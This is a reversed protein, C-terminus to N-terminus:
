RNVIVRFRDGDRIDYNQYFRGLVGGQIRQEQIPVGQIQAGRGGEYTSAFPYEDPSGEGCFGKCALNRNTEIKTKNTTRTLVSPKGGSTQASEINNAINPMKDADIKLVPLDDVHSVTDVIDDGLNLLGIGVNQAESLVAPSASQLSQLEKLVIQAEGLPNGLGVINGLMLMHADDATTPQWASQYVAQEVM